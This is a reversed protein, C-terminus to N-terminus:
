NMLAMVAEIDLGERTFSVDAEQPTEVLRGRTVAHAHLVDWATPKANPMDAVMRTLAEFKARQEAVYSYDKGGTALDCWIVEREVLDFMAPVYSMSKHTLEFKVAVSEPEFVKGSKLADREMYGAFCPFAGFPGGRFSIVSMALYRAKHKRLATEIDIDIFESAGHPASTIDGSHVVGQEKLNTFSVQGGFDFTESLWVASLDVDQGTWHIFMRLVKADDAIKFRSGKMMPVSTASDGRRNYPVLVRKLAPDLYVAGMPDLKLIRAYLEDRVIETAALLDGDRIPKRRDPVIQARNTNGKPLFVRQGVAGDRHELYKKIEFLLKTTAKPAATRLGDLVVGVTEGEDHTEISKANRLLFDLKRIFEGPRTALLNVFGEDIDRARVYHEVTRNFTEIEGEFSHLLDFAAKTKPFATRYRKRGLHVHAAFRKWVEPHRMLDEELNSRSELMILADRILKRTLKFKPAKALSLDAEPDSAYAMIRLVDTAGSLARVTNTLGFTEYVFPLTERFVREPMTLGPKMAFARLITKEADSLSSNRALLANGTAILFADDAFGIVKLPTFREFPLNTEPTKNGLLEPVQEQCIPCAGFESLDFLRHDIAHGCSLLTANAPALSFEHQFYGMVRALLYQHQDPTDYPFRTFLTRHKKNAGSVEMLLDLIFDRLKGFEAAPVERLRAILDPGFTYGLSAVETNFIAVHAPDVFPRDGTEFSLRSYLTLLEKQVSREQVRRYHIL